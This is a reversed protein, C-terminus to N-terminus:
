VNEAIKRAGIWAWAAAENDPTFLTVEIEPGLMEVIDASWTGDDIVACRRIHSAAENRIVSATEGSLESLDFSELDIIRLLLDIRDSITYAGELLGCFNEADAATFEDSLEVAFVDARDTGIRKVAPIRELPLM